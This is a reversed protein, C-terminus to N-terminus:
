DTFMVTPLENTTYLRINFYGLVKFVNDIQKSTLNNKWYSLQKKANGGIVPSGALTTSSTQLLKDFSAKPLHIDWRKEIRKLQEVGDLLLSEYCMTVWRKNNEMHNLPVQNCLCWTAALREEVTYISALFEQHASYFAPYPGSPIKFEPKIHNWGGQKLQSAVVACPHRVLYVPAHRFQFEKTLWPLLQNARCFKILLNKASKLKDPSTRQCLYSNLIKGSFLNTFAKLAENWSGGEPIFQRYSFGLSKFTKERDIWLPEWLLATDPIFQLIESLWTTGGRPDGCIILANNCDFSIQKSILKYQIDLKVNIAKAIAKRIM